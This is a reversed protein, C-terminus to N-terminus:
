NGCEISIENFLALLEDIKAKQKDEGLLDLICKGDHMMVLRSGYELAFRLNHTVMLTTINKKKVIKDTLKMITESSKPDLAATHEDLVLMQIDSMNALVLALAQRQGGSLSGVKVNMRNELGMDCDALLHRYYELRQKNIARGLGFSKNKNDALAMNEIITLGSCTGANPAQFVRGIHVARQYDQLKTIDKGEFLIHGADPKLTGCVLNLLTTKGSGNSGIVSVFEGKNVSFNFDDFLVTEDPTGANFVTKIGQMELM